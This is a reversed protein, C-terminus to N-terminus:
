HTWPVLVNQGFAIATGALGMLPLLFRLPPRWRELGLAALCALAPLGLLAERADYTATTFAVEWVSAFGALTLVILALEGRRHEATIRGVGRRRWLGVLALALALWFFVSVSTRWRNADWGSEFWFTQFIRVPVDHLVLRLPDLVAYPLGWTGLGGTTMLYHQSAAKAFVDGYRIDNQVFYWGAVLVVAGLAALAARGRSRWDGGSLVVPFLVALAPLASLKTIILLGCIAGVAAKLWLSPSQLSRVTTYALVAGLLDVLNDNTVYASLFAFRPLSAVVAAAVIPTWRDRSLRRATLFTILVTLLGLAVNALRLPLLWRHQAAYHHRYHDHAPDAPSFNEHGPTVQHAPEGIMQQFGAMLFYYLPPQHSENIVIPTPPPPIRAPIRYMHGSVLTEVNTVHDSEDEGEWAPTKVAITAAAAVFVLGLAALAALQPWSVARALILRRVPVVVTSM